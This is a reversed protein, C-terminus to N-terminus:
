HSLQVREPYGYKQNHYHERTNTVHTPLCEHTAILQNMSMDVHTTQMDYYANMHRLSHQCTYAAILTSMCIDASSPEGIHHRIHYFCYHEGIHRHQNQVYGDFAFIYENEVHNMRIIMVM